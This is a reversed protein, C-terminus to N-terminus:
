TDGPTNALGLLHPDLSYPSHFYSLVSYITLLLTLVFLIFWLGHWFAERATRVPFYMCFLLFFSLFFSLSLSPHEESYLIFRSPNTLSPHSVHSGASYLKSVYYWTTIVLRPPVLTLILRHAAANCSCCSLCGWLRRDCRFFLSACYICGPWGRGGRGIQLLFQSCVGGSIRLASHGMPTLTRVCVLCGRV